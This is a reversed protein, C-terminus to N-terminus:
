QSYVHPLAFLIASCIIAGNAGLCSLRNLILKRFLFEEFFPNFLLLLVVYFWVHGLLDTATLSHPKVGALKQVISALFMVPFSLGTQIVFYKIITSFGPKLEESKPFGSSSIGGAVLFFAGLGLTYPIVMSKMIMRLIDPLTGKLKPDIIIGYLKFILFWCVLGVTIRLVVLANNKKM